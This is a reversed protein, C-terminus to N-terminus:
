VSLRRRSYLAFRDAPANGRSLIMHRTPLQTQSKRFRHIRQDFRRSSWSLLSNGARDSVSDVWGPRFSTTTKETIMIFQHDRRSKKLIAISNKKHLRHTCQLTSLKGFGALQLLPIFPGQM